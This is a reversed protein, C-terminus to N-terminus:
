QRLMGADETNWYNTMPVGCPVIYTNFMLHTYLGGAQRPGNVGEFTPQWIFDMTQNKVRQERELDTMRGFYLSEYGMLQFLENM